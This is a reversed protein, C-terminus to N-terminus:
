TARSKEGLYAAIVDENQRIEEPHGEAIKSGFNIVVIRDCYDMVAKMHHEILLISRKGNQRLSNILGMIWIIEKVNMGSVPEDLLLVEPETMLAMAVTMAQRFGHPLNKALEDKHDALGVHEIMEIASKELEKRKKTKPLFADWFGIGLGKKICGGLMVNQLVTLDDFITKLQFTRCIGVRSIEHPNKKSINQGKFTISGSSVKFIGSILNFITTKGAGNPGILGLLEGKELRLDMNNVACLGGFNKTVKSLELLPIM